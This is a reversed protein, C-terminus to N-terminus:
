NSCDCKVFIYTIPSKFNLSICFINHFLPSFQEKEEKGCYKKGTTLHEHKPLALNESRSLRNNTILSTSIVLTLQIHETRTPEDVEDM